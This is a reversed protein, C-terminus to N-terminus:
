IIEENEENEKGQTFKEPKDPKGPLQVPVPEPVEPPNGGNNILAKLDGISVNNERVIEVIALNRTEETKVKKAKIKEAFEKFKEEMSVVDKELNELRKETKASM